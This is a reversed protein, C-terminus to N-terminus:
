RAARMFPFPFIIAQSSLSLLILHRSSVTSRDPAVLIRKFPKKKHNIERIMDFILFHKQFFRTNFPYSSICQQYVSNPPLLIVSPRQPTLFRLMRNLYRLKAHHNRSSSDFLDQMKSPIFFKKQMIKKSPHQPPNIRNVRTLHMNTEVKTHQALGIIGELM